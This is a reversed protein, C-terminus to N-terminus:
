RSFARPVQPMLSVPRAAVQMFVPQYEDTEHHAAQAVRNTEGEGGVQSRTPLVTPNSDAKVCLTGFNWVWLGIDRWIRSPWTRLEMQGRPNSRNCEGPVSCRKEVKMVRVEVSCCLIAFCFCTREGRNETGFLSCTTTEM